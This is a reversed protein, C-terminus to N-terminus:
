DNLFRSPSKGFRKKFSRSFSRADGYGVRAALRAVSTNSRNELLRRAADLRVEQLYQGPTLGTLRKLQRLLTSESMVFEQALFPVSLVNNSFHEQVYAEFSELWERDSESLVPGSEGPEAEAPIERSRIAQNKLLNDIRVLLEEEDFPKLLYDDVGIRLAKLKDRVDARATLMIVPLHRTADDSRLRELLQYGDMVPMMLDSLILRCNATPPQRDASQPSGAALKELAARGNDATIVQYKKSLILRLYDQLEPNDEVVLIIPKSGASRTEGEKVKSASSASPATSLGDSSPPPSDDPLSGPFVTKEDAEQPHDNILTVPFTIRFLAGEGPESEVDIKGGFLQAYEHCLALGIGAGGEVPKDPRNTQFFRDFLHPLDDPHIGPGSDAVILQLNGSKEVSVAVRIRGGAPTFKFANSLLNYLIQRCKARDIHATLNEDPHIDFSFDIAKRQALSEFQALYRRFFLSLRTPKEKLEMKGMDLKGLDLIETVLNELQKVNRNAMRLLKKQKETLQKEKLLSTVPGLILSLPTRLEHSVNTFFRTKFSDLDKLRAAEEQERALASQLMWRRKFIYFILYLFGSFILFYGFYAGYTRWWPPRIIFNYEVPDSWKGAGRGASVKLTYTRPSLNRYDVKPERYARSWTKDAGELFYRYKVNQPHRWDSASFHFTLHNLDNPLTMSVPANSFAAVSDFAELLDNGFRLQDRYATDKLRRFDVFEQNIEIHAVQVNQPPEASLEFRDLDLMTACSITGWWIRNQPDLCVSNAQFDLRRLGEEKGFTTFSGASAVMTGSAAEDPLMEILTIGKETGAWINGQEDELLSWIVNNSLGDHTTYHIMDTEQGRRAEQDPNYCNLGNGFTGFWINGRRDELISRIDNGALGEETTFHTFYGPQGDSYSAPPEFRSVGESTGFWIRGRRDELLCRVSNSILGEETTFQTFTEGDYRSVGSTSVMWVGGRSDELFSKVENSILGQETRFHTFSKGDFLSVGGGTGFWVNGHSDLMISLVEGHILGERSTFYTFRDPRGDPYTNGSKFLIAAGETGFWLNGKRDAAIATYDSNSFPNEASLHIFGNPNLRYAGSGGSGFWLNERSDEMLCRVTKNCLGEGTSYHTFYRGDYRSAGDASGFWLNDQKDRLICLVQNSLLGEKRTFRVFSDQSLEAPSGAQYCTVGDRTGFWIDGDEDEEISYVLPHTLGERTTYHTFGAGPNYRCVGEATGIWLQERSDVLMSVVRNDILGERTTFHTFSLPARENAETPKYRLVGATTGFWLNGRKDELIAKVEYRDVGTEPLYHIFRHGDYCTVGNTTGFWLNGRSDELITRVSNQILGEETTYHIFHHGDYRSIGYSTGFWLFGQSDELMYNIYSSMMGQDVDLNQIDYAAEESIRPPLASVPRPQRAPKVVVRVTISKPLPVGNEGPRIRTLQEPIPALKPEGAALTNGRVPLSRPQERMPVIVPPAVSDPHIRRGTAPFSPLSKRDPSNESLHNVPLPQNRQLPFSERPPPGLEREESCSLPLLFLLLLICSRSKFLGSLANM